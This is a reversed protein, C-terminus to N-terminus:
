WYIICNDLSEGKVDDIITTKFNSQLIDILDQNVVKRNITIYGHKAKLVIENIYKMKLPTKLETLAYNSIVFDVEFDKDKEIDITKIDIDFLKTYKKQLQCVENIDAISYSKPSFHDYIIKCQGGYGGGIEIINLNDLNPVYKILNSLVGIYQITSTSANIIAFETKFTNIKADCFKDNDFFLNNKMLNPNDKRIQKIYNEAIDVRCHELIATFRKDQKFSHFVKYQESAEKCVQVYNKLVDEKVHWNSM